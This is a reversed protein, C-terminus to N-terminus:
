VESETKFPANWWSKPFWLNFCSHKGTYITMDIGSKWGFSTIHDSVKSNPFMAKLSDGNTMEKTGMLINFNSYIQLLNWPSHNFQADAKDFREVLDKFTIYQDPRNLLEQRVDNLEKQYEERTM